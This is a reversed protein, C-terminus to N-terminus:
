VKCLFVRTKFYGQRNNFNYNNTPHCFVSSQFGLVLKVFCFNFGAVIENNLVCVETVNMDSQFDGTNVTIKNRIFSQFLKGSNGLIGMIQGSEIHFSVDKLIQRTWKKCYLSFNWWPGVRERPFCVDIVFILCLIHLCKAYLM